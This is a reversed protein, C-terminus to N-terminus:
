IHILSLVDPTQNEPMVQPAYYRYLVPNVENATIDILSQFVYEGSSKPVVSFYKRQNPETFTIRYAGTSPLKIIDTFFNSGDKNNSFSNIKYLIIDTNKSNNTAIYNNPEYTFGEPVKSLTVVYDGDLQNNRAVGDEGIKSRYVSTGDSWQAYIDDQPSYKEGLYYLTVTFCDKDEDTGTGPTDPIDPTDTSSGPKEAPSVPPIYETCGSLACVAVMALTIIFTIFKKM